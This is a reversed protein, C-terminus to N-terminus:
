IAERFHPPQWPTANYEAPVGNNSYDGVSAWYAATADDVSAAGALAIDQGGAPTDDPTPSWRRYQGTEYLILAGLAVLVLVITIVGEARLM